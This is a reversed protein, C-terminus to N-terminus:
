GIRRSSPKPPFYTVPILLDFRGSRVRYVAVRGRLSEPVPPAAVVHKRRFVRRRLLLTIGCSRNVYEGAVFGSRLAIHYRLTTFVVARDAPARECTGTLAVVDVHKFEESIDHLRAVDAAM